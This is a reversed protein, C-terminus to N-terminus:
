EYLKMIANVVDYNCQEYALACKELSKATQRMILEVDDEYTIHIDMKLVNRYFNRIRHTKTTNKEM